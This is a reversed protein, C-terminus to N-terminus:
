RFYTPNLSRYKEMGATDWFEIDPDNPDRAKYIHCAVASNPRTSGFEDRVIRNILCTKGVRADGILVVRPMLWLGSVSLDEGDPSLFNFM